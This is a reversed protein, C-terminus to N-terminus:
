SDVRSAQVLVLSIARDLHRTLIDGRSIPGFLPQFHYLGRPHFRGALFWATGQVGSVLGALQALISFRQRYFFARDTDPDM